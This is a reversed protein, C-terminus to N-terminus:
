AELAVSQLRLAASPKSAITLPHLSRNGSLVGSVELDSSGLKVRGAAAVPPAEVAASCKAAAANRPRVHKAQRCSSILRAHNSVHGSGALQVSSGPWVGM